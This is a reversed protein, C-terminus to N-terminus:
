QYKTGFKATKFAKAKSNEVIQEDSLRDGALASVFVKLSGISKLFGPAHFMPM